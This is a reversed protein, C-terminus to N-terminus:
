EAEIVVSISVHKGEYLHVDVKHEGVTKLHGHLHIHSKDLDVKAQDLIAEALDIESVGGFLKDGSSVKRKLTITSAELKKAVEDANKQIEEQKAVRNAKIEEAKAKETPTAISALGNPLLFNRAYGLAVKVIDGAFGVHKVNQLLVVEM